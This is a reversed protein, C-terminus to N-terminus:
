GAVRGIQSPDFPKQDRLMAYCITLIKRGAAVVAKKRGDKKGRHIRAFFQRMAPCRRITQYAAQILVWRVVSPGRKSIHGHRETSGSADLTPTMGFYSAFKKGHNFRSVEDAFAVIAEATRPGVGPITKLLAVNPHTAAIADLQKEIEAIAQDDRVVQGLLHQLLWTRGADFTLSKLWAHGKRTWCRRYPCRVAHARLIAHIQNKTVTRREVLSRRHNILTRWTSVDGSPLHVTPLQDMALLIALKKADIRDNKKGSRFLWPIRSPNAVQVEVALPRVIQAVWQAQTGVEYAVRCDGGLPKLVSRYAQATTPRTMTRFSRRGKLEPDHLCFTTTKSHVDMGVYVM